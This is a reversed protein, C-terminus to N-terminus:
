AIWISGNTLTSPQSLPIIMQTQSYVNGALTIGTSQLKLYVDDTFTSGLTQSTVAITIVGSHDMEIHSGGDNVITEHNEDVGSKINFNGYGDHVTIM